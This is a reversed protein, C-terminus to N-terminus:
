ARRRTANPSDELRLIKAVRSLLREEDWTQCEWIVVVRWGEKTLRRRALRDRAVNTAFKVLWGERNTAPQVRGFRCRHRHWFCGHVFVALGLRRVVLDPRGPLSRVNLRYRVGLASFASRVRLEPSTGSSRIRAM